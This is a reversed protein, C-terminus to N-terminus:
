IMLTNFSLHILLVHIGSSVTYGHLRFIRFGLATTNLDTFASERGCGIGKETWYRRGFNNQNSQANTRLVYVFLKFATPVSRYVYDLAVEIETQFHGDIGLREVNDVMWLHQLLDNVPSILEGDAISFSNFIEKM